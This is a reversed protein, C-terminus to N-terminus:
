FEDLDYDKPMSSNFRWFIRDPIGIGTTKIYQRMRELTDKTQHQQSYSIMDKLINTKSTENYYRKTIPEHM